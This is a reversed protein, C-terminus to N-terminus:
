VLNNLNDLVIRCVPASLGALFAFFLWTGATKHVSHAGSSSKRQYFSASKM